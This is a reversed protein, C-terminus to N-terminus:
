PSSTLWQVGIVKTPAVAPVIRVDRAHLLRVADGSACELCSANAHQVGGNAPVELDELAGQVRIEETSASHAFNRDTEDPTARHDMEIVRHRQEAAGSVLDAPDGVQNGRLSLRRRIQETRGHGREALDGLVGVGDDNRRWRSRVRIQDAGAQPRPPRDQALLRERCRTGRSLCEDLCRGCAVGIRTPWKRLVNGCTSSARLSTPAPSM